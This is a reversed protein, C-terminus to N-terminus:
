LKKAGEIGEFSIEELDKRGSPKERAQLAEPLDKVNGHKGVAIM